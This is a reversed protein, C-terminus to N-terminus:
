LPTPLHHFTQTHQFFVYKIDFKARKKVTKRVMSFALKVMIGPINVESHQVLEMALTHLSSFSSDCVICAISPDAQACQIATAAGMSRGWLAIRTVVDIQRLHNILVNVDEKEYYGLSIYEGESLGCGSFDFAVVMVNM